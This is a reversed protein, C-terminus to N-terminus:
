KSENKGRFLGVIASWMLNMILSFGGIPKTSQQIPAVPAPKLEAEIAAAPPDAPSSSAAAAPSPASQAIQKELSKSFQGILQAAITQIMGAGRGYQAVSGSLNLDTDIVVKSGTGSPELRFHVLANAGGKGKADNGQAKVRATHAVDDREEFKATGAFALVVPGMRVAVKGKYTEPDVVETLEAGPMCPAIAPIDMLTKWAATPPLSVEFTNSFQM